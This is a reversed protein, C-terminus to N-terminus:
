VFIKKSSSRRTWSTNALSGKSKIRSLSQTDDNAKPIKETNAKMLDSQIVDFGTRPITPTIEPDSAVVAVNPSSENHPSSNWESTALMGNKVKPSQIQFM